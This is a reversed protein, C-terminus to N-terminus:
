FYQMAGCPLSPTLWRPLDSDELHLDLMPVNITAIDAYETESLGMVGISSESEFYYPDAM